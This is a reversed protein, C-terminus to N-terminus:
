APSSLSLDFTLKPGNLRTYFYNLVDRGLLVCSEPTTVVEAIRFRAQAVELIVFCTRVTVLRGDYGSVSIEDGAQLKLTELATEPIATIDAATDIKAPVTMTLDANVSSRLLVDLFPAPPIVTKDYQWM